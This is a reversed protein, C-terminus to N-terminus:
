EMDVYSLVVLTIALGGDESTNNSVEMGQCRSGEMAQKHPRNEQCRAEWLLSELLSFHSCTGNLNQSAPVYSLQQLM